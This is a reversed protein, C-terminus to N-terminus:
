LQGATGQVKGSEFPTKVTPDLKQNPEKKKEERVAMVLLHASILFPVFLWIASIESISGGHDGRPYFRLKSSQTMLFPTLYVGCFFFVSSAIYKM